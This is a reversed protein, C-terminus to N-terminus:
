AFYHESLCSYCLDTNRMGIRKAPIGGVIEYDGVDRTVVAGACIIAGKGIHVGQLIIANIGIWVFDDIIIPMFVSQFSSSHIKHSGTVIQANFSVSVNNGISIGGRGDLFCNRNIHCKNGIKVRYPSLTYLKMNIVSDHGIKLGCLQLFLKRFFWFPINSIVYNLFFITLDYLIIFLKIKRINM